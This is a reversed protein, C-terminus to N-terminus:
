YYEDVDLCHLQTTIQPKVRAQAFSINEIDTNNLIEIIFCREDTYFENEANTKYIM